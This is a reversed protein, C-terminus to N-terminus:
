YTVTIIKKISEALSTEGIHYFRVGSLGGVTWEPIVGCWMGDSGRFIIQSDTIKEGIESRLDKLINEINNTVSVGGLDFDEITLINDEFIWGYDSKGFM